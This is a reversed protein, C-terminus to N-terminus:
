SGGNAIETINFGLKLFRVTHEKQLKEWEDTNTNINLEFYDPPSCLVYDYVIDRKLTERCDELYIM